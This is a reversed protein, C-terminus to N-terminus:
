NSRASCWKVYGGAGGDFICYHCGDGFDYCDVTALMPTTVLAAGTLMMAGVLLKAKLSKM